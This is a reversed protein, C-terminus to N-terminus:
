LGFNSPIPKYPLPRVARCEISFQVLYADESPAFLYDKRVDNALAFSQSLTPLNEFHRAQTYPSLSLNQFDAIKGFIRNQMYRLDDFPNQYGFLDNDTPKDGNFMIEKNLVPQLGM